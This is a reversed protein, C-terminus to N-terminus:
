GKLFVYYDDQAIRKWGRKELELDLKEDKILIFCFKRKLEQEAKKKVLPAIRKFDGLTKTILHISPIIKDKLPYPMVCAVSIIEDNVSIEIYLRNRPKVGCFVNIDTEGAKAPPIGAVTISEVPVTRDGDKIFIHVTGKRQNDYMTTLVLNKETGSVLPVINHYKNGELKVAIYMIGTILQLM